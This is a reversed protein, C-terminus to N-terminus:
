KESSNNGTKAHANKLPCIWDERYKRGSYQFVESSEGFDSLMPNVSGSYLVDRQRVIRKMKEYQNEKRIKEFQAHPNFVMAPYPFRRAHRRNDPHLGIIFFAEEGLSFSFDPAQPDSSVRADYKYKEADLRALNQLRQWLLREFVEETISDPQRFIIAASHFITGSRRYERTFRYLFALIEEDDTPCGMHMAIFCPIQHRALAARAAVCPYREDGIFNRFEAIIDRSRQDRM